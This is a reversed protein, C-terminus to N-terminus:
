SILALGHRLIRNWDVASFTSNTMTAKISPWFRIKKQAAIETNKKKRACSAPRFRDNGLRHDRCVHRDNKMGEAENAFSKHTALSYM